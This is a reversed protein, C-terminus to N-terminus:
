LHPYTFEWLVAFGHLHCIPCKLDLNIGKKRLNVRVPLINKVIRWLFNRINNPVPAKWIAKWLKSNLLSSSSPVQRMNEEILLHYASKVSYIGDKEWHWIIRDDPLRFSLQIKTIQSAEFQNFWSAILDRKWKKTDLDILDRVIATSPLNQVPGHVKFNTQDPLWNDHWIKISQGNGVVWRTGKELVERGCM